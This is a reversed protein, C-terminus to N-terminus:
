QQRVNPLEDGTQSDFPMWKVRISLTTLDPIYTNCFWTLKIVILMVWTVQDDHDWWTGFNAGSFFTM